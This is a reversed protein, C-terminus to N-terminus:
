RMPDSHPNLPMNSTFCKPQYVASAWYINITNFSSFTQLPTLYYLRFYISLLLHNLTPTKPNLSLQPQLSLCSDAVLLCSPLCLYNLISATLASLRSVPALPESHADVMKGLTGRALLAAWTERPESPPFSSHLTQPIEQIARGTCLGWGAGSISTLWSLPVPIFGLYGSGLKSGDQLTMPAITPSPPTVGYLVYRGLRLLFLQSEPHIPTHHLLLHYSPPCGIWLLGLFRGLSSFSYAWVVRRRFLGFSSQTWNPCQGDAVLFRRSFPFLDSFGM